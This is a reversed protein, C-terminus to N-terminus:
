SGIVMVSFSIFIHSRGLGGFVGLDWVPQASHSARQTEKVVVSAEDRLAPQRM